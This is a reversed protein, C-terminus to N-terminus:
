KKEGWIIATLVILGLLSWRIIKQIEQPIKDWFIFLIILAIIIVTISLLIWGCGGNDWLISSDKIKRNTRSKLYGNNSKKPFLRSLIYNLPSKKRRGRGKSGKSRTSTKKVSKSIRKKTGKSLLIEALREAKPNGNAIEEQIIKVTENNVFPPQYANKFDGVDLSNDNSLYSRIVKEAIRKCSVDSESLNKDQVLLRCWEILMKINGTQELIELTTLVEESAFSDLDIYFSCNSHIRSNAIDFDLNNLLEIVKTNSYISYSTAVINDPIYNYDIYEGAVFPLCIAYNHDDNEVEDWYGVLIQLCFKEGVDYNDSIASYYILKVISEVQDTDNIECESLKQLILLFKEETKKDCKKDKADIVSACSTLIATLVEDWDPLDDFEGSTFTNDKEFIDEGSMKEGYGYSDAITEILLILQGSSLTKNEELEKILVKLISPSPKQIFEVILNEIESM